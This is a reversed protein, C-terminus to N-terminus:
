DTDVLQEPDLELAAALKEITSSRPNEAKEMQSLAAQTIGARAAVEKQSLGKYIRWAKLLNCDKEVSIGVVDHPITIRHEKTMELYQRYPIVAFTPTDGQYIIQADILTKM